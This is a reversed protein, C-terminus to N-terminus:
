KVVTFKLLVRQIHPELSELKVVGGAIRVHARSVGMKAAYAQIAGKKARPRQPLEIPPDREACLERYTM